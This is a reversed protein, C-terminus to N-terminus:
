EKGGTEIIVPVMQCFGSLLCSEKRETRAFDIVHVSLQVMWM